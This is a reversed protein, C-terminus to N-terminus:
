NFFVNQGPRPFVARSAGSIAIFYDFSPLLKKYLHMWRALLFANKLCIVEYAFPLSIQEQDLDMKKNETCTCEKPESLWVQGGAGLKRRKWGMLPLMATMLPLTLALHSRKHSGTPPLSYGDGWRHWWFIHRARGTPATRAGQRTCDVGVDTAARFVCLDWYPRHLSRDPADCCLRVIMVPQQSGYNSIRRCVCPCVWVCVRLSSAVCTCNLGSVLLRSSLWGDM